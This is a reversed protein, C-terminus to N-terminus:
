IDRYHLPEFDTNITKGFGRDLYQQMGSRGSKKLTHTSERRPQRNQLPTHNETLQM